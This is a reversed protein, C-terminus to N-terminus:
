ESGPSMSLFFVRLRDDKRLIDADVTVTAGEDDVGTGIWRLESAGCEGGGGIGEAGAEGRSEERREEVWVPPLSLGGLDSEAWDERVM